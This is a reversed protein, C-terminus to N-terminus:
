IMLHTWRDRPETMGMVNTTLIHVNIQYMKCVVQIDPHDMWLWGSRPDNQLFDLYEDENAIPITESGATVNLPFKYVPKFFPWFKVVNANTNRRIYLALRGDQHCHLGTSSASFNCFRLHQPVGQIDPARRNSITNYRGWVGESGYNIVPSNGAKTAALIMVKLKCKIGKHDSWKGLQIRGTSKSTITGHLSARRYTDVKFHVM